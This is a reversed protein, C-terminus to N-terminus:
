EIESSVKKLVYYSSKRHRFTYDGSKWEYFMYASGDIEKITYKSATKTYNDSIVLGKTWTRDYGNPVKDNKCTLRGNGEFIMDNLFLEGGRGKWRQEGVKFQKIEEM